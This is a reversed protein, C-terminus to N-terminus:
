NSTPASGIVNVTFQQDQGNDIQFAVTVSTPSSTMGGASLTVYRSSIWLTLPTKVPIALLYDQGTSDVTSRQAANFAGTGFFVGATLRPFDLPHQESTPLLHQPDNIRIRVFVGTRIVVNLTSTQNDSVTVSPATSWQCPDLYRQGPVNVCMTYTGASLGSTKHSGVADTTVARDVPVEGPVLHLTGASSQQSTSFPQPATSVYTPLRHYSVVAGKIPTGQSDRVTGQISGTQATASVAAAIITMFIHLTRM